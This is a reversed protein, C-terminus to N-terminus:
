ACNESEILVILTCTSCFGRVEEQADDPFLRHRMIQVSAPCVHHGTITIVTQLYLIRKFTANYLHRSGQQGLFADSRLSECAQCLATSCTASACGSRLRSVPCLYYFGWIIANALMYPYNSFFFDM